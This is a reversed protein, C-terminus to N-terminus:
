AIKYALIMLVACITIFALMFINKLAAKVGQSFPNKRNAKPLSKITKRLFSLEDDSLINKPLIIYNNNSIFFCFQKFTEFASHLKDLEIVSPTSTERSITLNKGTVSLTYEPNSFTRSDYEKKANEPLKFFISNIYSIPMFLAILAIILNRRTTFFDFLIFISVACVWLVTFLETYDYLFAFYRFTLYDKKSIEIKKDKIM